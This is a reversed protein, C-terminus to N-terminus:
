YDINHISRHSVIRITFYVEKADLIKLKLIGDRQNEDDCETVIQVIREFEANKIAEKTNNNMYWSISNEYNIAVTIPVGWTTGLFCKFSEENYKWLYKLKELYKLMCEAENLNEYVKIGKIIM